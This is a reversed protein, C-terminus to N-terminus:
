RKIRHNKLQAIDCSTENEGGGSEFLETLFFQKFFNFGGAGRPFDLKPEDGKAQTDDTEQHSHIDEGGEEGVETRTEGLREGSYSDAGQERERSEASPAYYRTENPLECRM